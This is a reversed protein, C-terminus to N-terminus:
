FHSLMDGIWYDMPEHEVPDLFEQYMKDSPALQQFDTDLSFTKLYAKTKDSLHINAEPNAVNIPPDAIARELGKTFVNFRGIGKVNGATDHVVISAVFNTLVSYRSLAIFVRGTPLESTSHEAAFLSSSRM